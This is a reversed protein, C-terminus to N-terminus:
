VSFQTSEHFSEDMKNLDITLGKSATTKQMKEKYALIPPLLEGVRKMGRMLRKEKTERSDGEKGGVPAKVLDRPGKESLLKFDEPEFIPQWTTTKNVLQKGSNQNKMQDLLQIRYAERDVLDCFAQIDPSMSSGGENSEKKEM